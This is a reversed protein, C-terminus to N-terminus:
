EEITLLSKELVEQYSQIFNKYWLASSKLTRKQTKFDVHVLGFRPRFGEAWEFNDLLSWVFYGILKESYKKSKLMESINESLYDIREVDNISKNSFIDKFAAGNESIIIKKVGEYSSFKEIMQSLAKPYVEWGMETLNVNRKKADVISAKLFPIFPNYKIIERTYNQIGIFDFEFKMKEEDNKLYYKEIKKLFGLEKTPYGLGLAPELFLRNTLADVRKASAIDKKSDARYPEILSCSFTTGVLCDKRLSKIIRGGEAQCLVAHHVAPLFNSLGKRGPAHIGLFYGAGTFVLPENLVMWRKVRDGFQSVCFAVYDFFWDVIRRNTWGGNNEIRQPLDWHYLTVWPEIGKELCKDILKSYFDVGKKNVYGYGDPFIRSWSISFRFNSIGLQEVIELDDEYNHYFDCAINANENNNIKGKKSAFTDWISAGRGDKNYAGEIQFASTSVGWHFPYDDNFISM